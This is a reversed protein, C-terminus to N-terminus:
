LCVPRFLCRLGLDLQEPSTQDPGVNNAVRAADKLGLIEPETHNLSNLIMYEGIHSDYEFESVQYMIMKGWCPGKM